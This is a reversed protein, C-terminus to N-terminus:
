FQFVKNGRARVRKCGYRNLHARFARELQAWRPSVLADDVVQEDAALELQYQPCQGYATAWAGALTLGLSQCGPLFVNSLYHDYSDADGAQIDYSLLLKYQVTTKTTM